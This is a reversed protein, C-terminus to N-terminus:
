RDFRLAYLIADEEPDAYYTRRRGVERFGQKEYLGRAALNSKRVELLIAGV